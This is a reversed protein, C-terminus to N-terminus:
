QTIFTSPGVVRVPRGDASLGAVPTATETPIVPKPVFRGDRNALTEPDEGGAPRIAPVPVRIPLAPAPSEVAAASGDIAASIV